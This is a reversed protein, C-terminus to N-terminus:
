CYHKKDVANVTSRV